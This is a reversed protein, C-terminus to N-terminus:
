SPVGSGENEADILPRCGGRHVRWHSVRCVIGCYRTEKCVCCRKKGGGDCGPNACCERVELYAIQAATAGAAKLFTIATEGFTSTPQVHAGKHILHKILAQNNRAAAVMLPTIGDRIGDKKAQNVDAGLEKDLVRVMSLDGLSAAIYLATAGNFKGQNVDAAFEKVLCRMIDLDSNQAAILMPTSGDNEAQNVDVSSEAFLCRLIDLYGEQAAIHLPLAGNANAQSVDADFDVILCRVVDL